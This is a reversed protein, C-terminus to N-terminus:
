DIGCVEALLEVIHMSRINNEKGKRLIGLSMQLQCGPNSTIVTTAKTQLVNDMKKDLIKMSDQYHLLNYIGGSACCSDAGEMELFLAGPISQLLLRPEKDVKQVNKLHCSDQYVIVGSWNNKFPLPGYQLLIQSIDKSKKVFEGASERWEKEDKLLHNYEILAAGCGGANNVYFEAGSQMFSRINSKAMEKAKLAEGQHSHLAGCCNQHEPIIVECGVSTLLEITLRNIRSMMADMICGTFFAVRVKTKGKAPIATGRRNRKFPSEVAPLVKEFQSLPESIKEILKTKGALKSLGTKQYMWVANGLAKMRKPYPFLHNLAMNKLLRPTKNSLKSQSEEIAEKAAELIHGYPVDVPCAKECARCGLCLDIPEAMHENINIKGESALKVLNIRGRPSASEKGMSEYTPCAPLCYGCQICQNTWDYTKDFLRKETSNSKERELPINRNM